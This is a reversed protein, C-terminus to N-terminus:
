STLTWQDDTAGLIIPESVSELDDGRGPAPAEGGCAGALVGVMALMSWECGIRRSM